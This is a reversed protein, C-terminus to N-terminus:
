EKTEFAYEMTAEGDRNGDGFVIKHRGPSTRVLWTWSATGNEDSILAYNNGTLGSATDANTHGSYYVKITYITKPKGRITVTVFEFNAPVGPKISVVKVDKLERKEGSSPKPATTGPIVVTGGSPSTPMPPTTETPHNTFAAGNTPLEIQGQANTPLTVAPKPDELIEPLPKAAEKYVRYGIYGTGALSFVL